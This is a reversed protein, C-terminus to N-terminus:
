RGPKPRPSDDAAGAPASAGASDHREALARMEALVLHRWVTLSCAWAVMYCAIGAAVARLAVLQFPIGAQFSLYAAIGFGALGGWGKARRVQAAARPHTAISLRGSAGESGKSKGKGEGKDKGKGKGKGGTDKRKKEKAKKDKAEEPKPKKDKADGAPAEAGPELDEESM